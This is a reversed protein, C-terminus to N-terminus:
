CRGGNACYHNADDLYQTWDSAIGRQAADLPMRGAKVEDALYNEVRDKFKFYRNKLTADDPGCQPWINGMGDAGGLELPVLHDLECIQAAGSNHQPNAIQYWSYAVRKRAQSEECDRICRTRWGPDQMVTLTVTSNIGGPTCQNDPIPYGNSFSAHCSGAAPEQWFQFYQSACAVGLTSCSEEQMPARMSGFTSPAEERNEPHPQIPLSPPSSTENHQQSRRDQQVVFFFLAIIAILIVILFLALPLSNRPRMTKV